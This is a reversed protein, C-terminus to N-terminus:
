VYHVCLVCYSCHQCILPCWTLSCHFNQHSRCVFNFGGTIVGVSSPLCLYLPFGRYISSKDCPCDSDTASAGLSKRKKKRGVGKQSHSCHSTRLVTYYGSGHGDFCRKQFAAIMLLVPSPLSPILCVELVRGRLGELIGGGLRM